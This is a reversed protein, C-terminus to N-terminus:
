WRPWLPGAVVTYYPHVVGGAFSFVGLYLLAWSGWLVYGVRSLDTRRVRLTLLLGGVLGALALPILWSIEGGLQLNFMRLWGPTGAFNPGQSSSSLYGGNRSFILDWVSNNTSGGIYPRSSQPWLEVIAVWWGAAMVFAAAGAVLGM